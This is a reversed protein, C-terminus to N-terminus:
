RGQSEIPKVTIARSTARSEGTKSLSVSGNTLSVCVSECAGCGNCRDAIVYPRGQGDLGMAEYPCADYCTRCGTDHYALCWDEVLEACGIKVSSTDIATAASGLAGTSCAAACKPIGNHEQACFDCYGRMFDMQPMRAGLLGDELHSLKIVHRPCAEVCRGCRTCSAFLADQDQGGPPRVLAQAPLMKVGGLALMVALGGIGTCLTRRTMGGYLKEAGEDDPADAAPQPAVAAGAQDAGASDTGAGHLARRGEVPTETSM